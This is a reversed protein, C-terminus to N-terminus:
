RITMSYCLNSNSSGPDHNEPDTTMSFHYGCSTEVRACTLIADRIPDYQLVKDFIGPFCRGQGPCPVGCALEPVTEPFGPRNAVRNQARNSVNTVAGDETMVLHGVSESYKDFVQSSNM